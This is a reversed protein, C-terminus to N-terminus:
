NSSTQRGVNSLVVVSSAPEEKSAGVLTPPTKNPDARVILSYRHALDYHIAAISVSAAQDGRAMEEAFRRSFYALDDARSM